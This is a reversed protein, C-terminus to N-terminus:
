DLVAICRLQYEPIFNVDDPITVQQVGIPRINSVILDAEEELERILASPWDEGEELHGGPLHWNKSGQKRCVLIEKKASFVVGYVQTIPSYQEVESTGIWTLQYEIDNLEYTNTPYNM